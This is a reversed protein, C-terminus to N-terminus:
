SLTSRASQSPFVAKALYSWNETLSSSLSQTCRCQVLDVVRQTPTDTQCYLQLSVYMGCHSLPEACRISVIVTRVTKSITVTSHVEMPRPPVPIAVLAEQCALVECTSSWLIIWWFTDDPFPPRSKTVGETDSLHLDSRSTM